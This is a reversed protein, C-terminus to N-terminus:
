EHSGRQTTSKITTSIVKGSQGPNNAHNIEQQIRQYIEDRHIAISQPAEFALKVQNNRIKIVSVTINDGIRVIENERRSLMLM